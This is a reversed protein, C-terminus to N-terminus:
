TMIHRERGELDLSLGVGLVAEESRGGGREPVPIISGIFRACATPHWM